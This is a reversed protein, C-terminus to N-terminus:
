RGVALRLQGFLALPDDISLRNAANGRTFGISARADEAREPLPLLAVVLEGAEWSSAPYPNAVASGIIGGAQDQLEVIPQSRFSPRQLIRWAARLQGDPEVVAEILEVFGGFSAIRRGPTACRRLSPEPLWQVLRDSAVSPQIPRAQEEVAWCEDILPSPEQSSRVLVGRRGEAPWVLARASDLWKMERYALGPLYAVGFSREDRGSFYIRDAQWTEPAARIARASAAADGGLGFVDAEVDRTRLVQWSTWIGAVGLVLAAAPRWRTPAGHEPRGASRWRGALGALAAGAVVIMPGYMPLPMRFGYQHSFFVMMQLFHTLVFAHLLWVRGSRVAPVFLVGGVYGLTLLVLEYQIQNTGLAPGTLGVAYLGMVALSWGYGVPDQVAFEVVERTLRDVGLARYLPDRDSSDLDVSATPQHGKWLNVGTTEVLFAARGAVILNRVGILSSVSLAVVLLVAAAGLAPRWSGLKRRQAFLTLGVAPPLFVLPTSRTLVALGLLVGGGVLDTWRWSRQWRVLLLLMAPIIVAVLNESLLLGAVQNFILYRFVWFLALAALAAHTGFLERALVYYLVGSAAVLAYQALLVGHLSEGLLLHLLALFYAYLPQYLLTEGEGLPEGGNMLPGHLLIDRAFGEYALWDNGGSLVATRGAFHRYAAMGELLAALLGAALLPREWWPALATPGVDGRHDDTAARRSVVLGVLVFVLGTGLVLLDLASALQGRMGDREIAEYSAEERLLQRPGLPATAGDGAITSVILYPVGGEPRSYRVQIPSVGRRVEQCTVRSQVSASRDISPTTDQRVQLTASGNAELRLCRRGDLPEVLWGRWTAAFPLTDRRPQSPTYFNFRHIDNFFHVPFRDGILDLAQDIRTAGDVRWETSREPPQNPAASTSYAATLGYPLALGGLVLRAALAAVLVLGSLALTRGRPRWGCWATVALVVASSLTFSDLPLGQLLALPHGPSVLYLLPLGPWILGAPPHYLRVM